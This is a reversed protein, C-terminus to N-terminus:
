EINFLLTQLYKNDEFTESGDLLSIRLKTGDSLIHQGTLANDIACALNMSNDYNDAVATVAVQCVDQYVGMKVSSKTYKVRTYVIFDGDTNEAAVIPYIHEGVQKVVNTDTLLIARVTTGIHWKQNSGLGSNSCGM